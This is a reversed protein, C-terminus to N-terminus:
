RDMTQLRKHSSGRGTCPTPGSCGYFTVYNRWIFRRLCLIRTTNPTISVSGECYWESSPEHFTLPLPYNGHIRQYRCHKGFTRVVHAVTYHDM